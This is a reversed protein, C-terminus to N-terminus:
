KTREIENEDAILTFGAFRLVAVARPIDQSSFKLMEQGRSKKWTYPIETEQILRIAELFDRGNKVHNFRHRLGNPVMMRRMLGRGQKPIFFVVTKV